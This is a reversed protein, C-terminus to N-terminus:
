PTIAARIRAKRSEDVPSAALLSELEQRDEASGVYRASVLLELSRVADEDIRRLQIQALYRQRYAASAELARVYEARAAPDPITAPDVDGSPFVIGHGPPPAAGHVPRKEPDFQPDFSRELAALFFLWHSVGTRRAAPDEVTVDRAAAKVIELAEIVPTPDSTQEFAAFKEKVREDIVDM